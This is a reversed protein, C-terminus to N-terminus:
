PNKQLCCGWGQGWRDKGVRGRRLSGHLDRSSAQPVGYSCDFSASTIDEVRNGSGGMIDEVRNGPGGM